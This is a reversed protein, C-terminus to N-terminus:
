RSGTCTIPLSEVRAGSEGPSGSVVGPSRQSGRRSPVGPGGAKGGEGAGVTPAGSVDGDIKESRTHAPFTRSEAGTHHSM